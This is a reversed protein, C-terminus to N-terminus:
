LTDIASISLRSLQCIAESPILQTEFLLVFVDALSELQAALAPFM